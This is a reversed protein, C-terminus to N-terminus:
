AQRVDDRRAIEIRWVTHQRSTAEAGDRAISVETIQHVERCRPIAYRHRM